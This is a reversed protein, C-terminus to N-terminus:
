RGLWDSLVPFQFLNVVSQWAPGAGQLWLAIAFGLLPLLAYYALGRWFWRDLSRGQVRLLLAVGVLAAAAALHVILVLELSLFWAFFGAWGPAFLNFFVYLAGLLLALPGLWTLYFFYSQRHNPRDGSAGSRSERRM